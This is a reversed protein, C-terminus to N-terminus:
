TKRSGNMLFYLIVVFFFPYSTISITLVQGKMGMEVRIRDWDMM